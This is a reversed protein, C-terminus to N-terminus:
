DIIIVPAKVDTTKNMIEIPNKVNSILHKTEYYPKNNQTTENKLNSKINGGSEELSEKV